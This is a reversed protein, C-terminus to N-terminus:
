QPESSLLPVSNDSVFRNCKELHKPVPREQDFEFRLYPEVQWSVRVARVTMRLCFGRCGSRFTESIFGWCTKADYEEDAASEFRHWYGTALAVSAVPEFTNARRTAQQVPLHWASPHFALLIPTHLRLEAKPRPQARGRLPAGFPCPRLRAGLRFLKKEAGSKLPRLCSLRDDGGQADELGLVEEAPRESVTRNTGSGELRDRCLVLGQPVVSSDSRQHKRQQGEGLLSLAPCFLCGPRDKADTRRTRCVGQRQGADDWCINEETGACVDRLSGGDSGQGRQHGYAGGVDATDQAGRGNCPKRDQAGWQDSRGGLARGYRADGGGGAPLRDQAPESDARPRARGRAPLASAAQPASASSAEVPRRRGQRGCLHAQLDNGQMGM